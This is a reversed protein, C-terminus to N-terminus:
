KSATTRAELFYAMILGLSAGWFILAAGNLAIADNESYISPFCAFAISDLATATFVMIALPRLLNSYEYKSVVKTVYLTILTVPIVLAFGWIVNPNNETLLTPGLMRIAVVGNLWFVFGLFVFLWFKSGKM